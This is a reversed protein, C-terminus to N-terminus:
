AWADPWLVMVFGIMGLLAASVAGATWAVRRARAIDRAGVAMGVMPVAAVGVGFAIPVLLFELRAGIGYGALAEAGHVVVLSIVVLVTGICLAQV